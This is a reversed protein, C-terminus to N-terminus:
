MGGRELDCCDKAVAVLMETGEDEAELVSVSSLSSTLESPALPAAAGLLLRSGMKAVRDTAGWSPLVETGVAAVAATRAECSISM